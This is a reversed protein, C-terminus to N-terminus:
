AQEDVQEKQKNALFRELHERYWCEARETTASAICDRISQEREDSTMPTIPEFPYWEGATSTPFRKGHEIARAQAAVPELAKLVHSIQPATAKTEKLHLLAAEAQENDIPMKSLRQRFRENVEAAWPRARPWLRAMLERVREIDYDLM